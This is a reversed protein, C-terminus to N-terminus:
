RLSPLFQNLHGAIATGAEYGWGMQFVKWEGSPTGNRLRLLLFGERSEPLEPPYTAPVKVAIFDAEEPISVTRMGSPAPANVRSARRMDLMTIEYGEYPLLYRQGNVQGPFFESREWDLAVRAIREAHYGVTGIKRTREGEDFPALGWAVRWADVVAVDESSVASFEDRVRELLRLRLEPDAAAVRRDLAAARQEVTGRRNVGPHNLETPSESPVASLSDRHRVLFMVMASFLVGIALAVVIWRLDFRFRSM